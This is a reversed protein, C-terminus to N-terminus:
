ADLEEVTAASGFSRLARVITGPAFGHRELLAAIRRARRDPPLSQYRRASNQILAAALRDEDRATAPADARCDDLARDITAPPVGKQRLEWRIRRTGYQSRSTRRAIWARAFVLDDLLGDAALGDVVAQITAKPVRRRALRERVEAASRPRVALLRLASERARLQADHAVLRTLMRLDISEGPALGHRAVQEVDVRLRRGNDLVILRWEGDGRPPGVGTQSRSAGLARIEKILPM